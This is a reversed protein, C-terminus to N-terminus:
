SGLPSHSSSAAAVARAPPSITEVRTFLREIEDRHRAYDRPATKPSFLGDREWREPDLGIAETNFWKVSELLPMQEPLVDRVALLFIIHALEEIRDVAERINNLLARFDETKPPLNRVHLNKLTPLDEIYDIFEFTYGTRTTDAAKGWDEFLKMMRAQTVVMRSIVSSMVKSLGPDLYVEHYFQPDTTTWGIYYDWITKLAMIPGIHHNPYGRQITDTLFDNLAIIYRNAHDVYDQTL